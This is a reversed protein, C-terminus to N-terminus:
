LPNSHMPAADWSSCKKLLDIQTKNRPIPTGDRIKTMGNTVFAIKPM